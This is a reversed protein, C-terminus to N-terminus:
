RSYRYAEALLAPDAGCRYRSWLVANQWQQRIVGNDNFRRASTTVHQPLMRFGGRRHLLRVMEVDEFLPLDPFGGVSEFTQRRVFLGRDGFCLSPPTLRTCAGYMRLLWGPADFRLRFTGSEVRSDSLSKHMGELAAEGFLTDAHLFLLVDGTAHRAGENMQRARGRPGQVVTGREAAIRSTDDTSGGDVVVVQVEPPLSDLTRGIAVAENLTPIIVSLNV